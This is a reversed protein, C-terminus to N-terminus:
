LWNEIYDRVNQNAAGPEAYVMCGTITSDKLEPDSLDAGHSELWCDLESNLFALKIATDERQKLLKEVEKPVKM